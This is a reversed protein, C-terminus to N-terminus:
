RVMVTDVVVSVLNQDLTRRFTVIAVGRTEAKFRFRQNPGGPNYPPVVDVSLFTLAGSSIIPPSEYMAPGVNGLTFDIMEGLEASIFQSRGDVDLPNTCATLMSAALPLVLRRSLM